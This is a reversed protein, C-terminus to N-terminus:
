SSGELPEGPGRDGWRLLTPPQGEQLVAYSRNVLWDGSNLYYRGPAVERLVPLHTHGFAV